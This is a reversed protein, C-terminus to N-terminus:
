QITCHWGRWLASDPAHDAPRGPTDSIKGTQRASSSCDGAAFITAAHLNLLLKTRTRTELLDDFRPTQKVSIFFKQLDKSYKTTTVTTLAVARDQSRLGPILAIRAHSLIYLQSCLMVALLESAHQVCLKSNQQCTDTYQLMSMAIKSPLAPHAAKVPKHYPDTRLWERRRTEVM